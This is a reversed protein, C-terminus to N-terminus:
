LEVDEFHELSKFKGDRELTIEIVDFRWISAEEHTNLYSYIARRLALRKRFTISEQGFGFSHFRRTKVEVFILFGGRHPVIRRAVIDIEGGRVTYNMKLIECGKKQLYYATIKEGYAGIKKLKKSDFM